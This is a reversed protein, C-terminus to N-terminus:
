EAAQIQPTFQSQPRSLGFHERLTSGEYEQRFLGRRRLIPAVEDVFVDLGGTFYPPMLNFGDAAGSAFWTQLRDAIQEPTGVEVWHGRAGALRHILQRITLHERDLIDIVLQFRSGAGREGEISVLERPFPGDLDYGSLDVGIVRRLQEISYEPQTLENFEEYLRKAEEETSGIFPSIGPLIVVHDPNRGLGAARAKIDAYFAQANALTQHATFIAEAFQAAFARGDDSAGAQVYVPRGQPTRPTNLPGRVKFHAGAHDIRHIRSTDAYVGSAKDAAVADDEWSDWLKTVVEVFERARGYRDAHVPHEALGFNQAAGADGTTVINWGARGRSLHDLSAFLRALNYPESYTTTATGILGIKETAAAIASLWTFPELRFRSAYRLNDALSPGDAFFVADFKAAEARQALAQYYTIDLIREPASDKYRWGAVHHGAPYIFLNLHIQRRAPM